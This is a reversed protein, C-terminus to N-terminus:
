VAVPLAKLGRFFPLDRWQPPANPEALRANPFREFFALIALQAEIRALPAGICIHTGGGFAIHPADKRAIDFRHPDAFVAPDRNAGRLSTLVSQTKRVPCGGIAMDRSAIRGTIDVPAEYRLVEEVASVILGPDEKLKKLEDPHSLLLWIGNGILDTTTLNGGVLLGQLNASIEGDSLPEGADQMAVMDSTLDDRPERRRQAMLERMYDSLANAAAVFTRTQEEDRFPNLSLIVGESWERFESLRSEDVGLIRAIVDIPVRLAFDNMADVTTKGALRDLWGDIVQQVLPKSRAIRRYFAKVFPNRIRAHDPDDLLLIGVGMEDRPVTLGEVPRDSLAKQMMAAEEAVAPDRWLTTDQVIARVDEYRTVIFTGAAEDRMVPCESRLRDLLKHPDANFEPNLPTLEFVSPLPADPM